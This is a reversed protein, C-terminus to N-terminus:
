KEGWRYELTLRYHSYSAETVIGAFTQESGDAQDRYAHIMGDHVTFLNPDKDQHRYWTDWGDLNRGNFLATEGAHLTPARLVLIALAATMFRPM